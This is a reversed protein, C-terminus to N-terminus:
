LLEHGLLLAHRLSASAVEWQVLNLFELIIIEGLIKSNDIGIFISESLSNNIGSECSFFSNLFSSLLLLLIEMFELFDLSLPIVVVGSSFSSSNIKIDVAVECARVRTESIGLSRGFLNRVNKGSAENLLAVAELRAERLDMSLLLKIGEEFEGVDNGFNFGLDLFRVGRNLDL